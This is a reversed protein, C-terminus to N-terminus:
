YATIVQLYLCLAFGSVHCLSVQQFLQINRMKGCKEKYAKVASQKDIRDNFRASLPKPAKTSYRSYVEAMEPKTLTFLLQKIDEVYGVHLLPVLFLTKKM